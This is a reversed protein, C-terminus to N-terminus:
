HVDGRTILGGATMRLFSARVLAGVVRECMEQELNWLRMAQALTLRLGPMELFECRIRRMLPEFEM